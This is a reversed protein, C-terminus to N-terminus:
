PTTCNVNIVNTLKTLNMTQNGDNGSLVAVGSKLDANVTLTLMGWPGLSAGSLDGFLGGTGQIMPFDVPTAEPFNTDTRTESILWLRNGAMDYGYFFVVIGSPSFILNLGQGDSAPDFWLGEVCEPRTITGPPPATDTNVVVQDLGIFNGNGSTTSNPDVDTVFYRLALRGQANVTFNFQTWATPYVNMDLNPNVAGLLTTFDGVDTAATGVSTGGTPSFRVELRDPFEPSGTGPVVTRTYFSLNQILGPTAPLILWNSITGAGGVSTFSAAIYENASGSFAAFTNNGQFWSTSGIPSSQNQIIWGQAPLSTVDAFEERLAEVGFGLQSFTLLVGGILCCRGLGKM